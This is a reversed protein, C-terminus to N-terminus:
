LSEDDVRKLHVALTWLRQALRVTAGDVMRGEVAVAGQGEAQACRYANLVKRARDIQEQSPSFVENILEIQDPHIAWKGDFGLACAAAASLSLGEKDQFNGYPADIAALGRSKAAMVLRSMPFHWRHGPYLEKEAEGHGSLSVLRAGISAQYDAIGFVLSVIRPSADAIEGVRELGAASEISVEIGIPRPFSKEMEIGSLLRHSFHVDGPHDVKPLVVADIREGSAEVVELLDRYGFRTDIPNVRVTLTKERWDITRLSQVVRARAAEKEHVPVSDELDLMVADAQSKAAKQHMKEMHGPVSLVSRRPKM